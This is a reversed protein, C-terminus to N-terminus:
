KAPIDAQVLQAVQAVNGKQDLLPKLLARAEAPRKKALLRALTVTAQDKSVTVAPNEMLDRLRKEGEADKGEAFDLQALALKAMAAYEKSGSDAVMGFRKRAEDNKGAQLAQAALSYEAVAGEATGGYRTAIESYAKVVAADKAKQDPFTLAAAQGPTAGVPADAIRLAEGLKARREGRAHEMWYYVGVGVLLAVVVGIVIQVAGKRHISLYDVTSGVTEAFSDTKLERRTLHESM